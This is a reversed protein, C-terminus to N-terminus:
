CLTVALRGAAAAGALATATGRPVRLVVLAGGDAAGVPGTEVSRPLRDVRASRAVVRSPGTGDAGSIVDVRDGPRLLRVAGADAIRVPVSVTAM